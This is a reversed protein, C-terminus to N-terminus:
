EAILVYLRNRYQDYWMSKIETTILDFDSFFLDGFKGRKIYNCLGNKYSVPDTYVQIITRKNLKRIGFLVELTM